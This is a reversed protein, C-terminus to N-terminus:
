PSVARNYIRVDDILGSFYTATTYNKGVGIYLGDGFVGAGDQTDEAVIVGDVILTRRSGDWVLGIRHWQEDTILAQSLLVLGNLETMLKGEADVALWDSGKPQSIIVQGPTGCKIWVVVSFTSEAPNPGTSCLICDDIGDLELAGGIMGGAPQWVPGGLVFGDNGNVSNHATMGETEDLAWHAILTPDDVEEFLHESLAILDRVDVIGDGFPTPGIDCLPYDEGWHDVMICMDIADVIGDGNLDVIPIIPAQYIDGYWLGGFGGPRDSCFYLMSGDPSIRPGVDHSPTNVIPGLNVPEGWPDSITARRSLWMDSGGFGGPRFPAMIEQGFFLLLGDYTLFPSTDHASSNVPPGLNVPEGWSDNKTARRSIWIDFGGYGGPRNESYFYLELGDSSLWPTGDMRSSNVLPGLNEPRGWADDTTARRSVWMDLSGYGGSRGSCFYLELGDATIYASWDQSGSNVHQGLNVPTGWDDDITERRAVWIDWAGQGGSRSSDLYMELGDSSFCSLADGSSKNVPPGLNVPEGFFFDAKASGAVLVMGAVFGVLVLRMRYDNLRKM